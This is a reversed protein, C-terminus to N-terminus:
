GNGVRWPARLIRRNKTLSRISDARQLKWKTAILKHFQSRRQKLMSLQRMFMFMRFAHVQISQLNGSQFM